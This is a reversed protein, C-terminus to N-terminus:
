SGTVTEYIAAFCQINHHKKKKAEYIVNYRHKMYKQCAINAHCFCVIGLINCQIGLHADFHTHRTNRPAREKYYDLMSCNFQGKVFENMLQVHMLQNHHDQEQDDQGNQKSHSQPVFMLGHTRLSIKGSLSKRNRIEALPALDIPSPGTKDVTDSKFESLDIMSQSRQRHNIQPKKRIAKLLDNDSGSRKFCTEQSETESFDNKTQKSENDGFIDLSYSPRRAGRRPTAM